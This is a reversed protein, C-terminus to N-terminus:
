QKAKPGLFALKEMLPYVHKALFADDKPTDTMNCIVSAVSVLTTALVYVDFLLEMSNGRHHQTDTEQQSLQTLLPLVKM